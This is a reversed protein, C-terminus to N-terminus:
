IAHLRRAMYLCVFIEATLYSELPEQAQGPFGPPPGRRPLPRPPPEACLLGCGEACEDMRRATVRSAALNARSFSFRSQTIQM